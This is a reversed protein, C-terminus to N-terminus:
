RFMCDSVINVCLYRFILIFDFSRVIIFLSVFSCVFSCVATTSVYPPPPPTYTSTYSQIMHDLVMANLRDLVDEM